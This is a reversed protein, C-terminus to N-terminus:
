RERRLASKGVNSYWASKSMTEYTDVNTRSSCYYINPFFSFILSFKDLLYNTSEEEWEENLMVNAGSWRSETLLEAKSTM